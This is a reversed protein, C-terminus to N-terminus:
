VYVKRGNKWTFKGGRPGTFIQVGSSSSNHSGSDLAYDLALEGVVSAAGWALRSMWSPEEDKQEQQQRQLSLCSETLVFHHVCLVKCMLLSM